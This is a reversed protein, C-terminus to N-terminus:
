IGFWFLTKVKEKVREPMTASPTDGASNFPYDWLKADMWPGQPCVELRFNELEDFNM